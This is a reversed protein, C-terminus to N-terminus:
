FFTLMLSPRLCACRRPPLKPHDPNWVFCVTCVRNDEGRQESLVHKNLRVRTGGNKSKAHAILRNRSFPIRMRSEYRRERKDLCNRGACLQVVVPFSFRPSQPHTDSVLVMNEGGKQVSNQIGDVCLFPTTTNYQGPSTSPTCLASPSNKFRVGTTRHTKARLNRGLHIMRTSEFFAFCSFLAIIEHHTSNHCIVVLQRCTAQVREESALCHNNSSQVKMVIVPPGHNQTSQVRACLDQSSRQIM